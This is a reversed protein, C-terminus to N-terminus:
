ISLCVGSLLKTLFEDEGKLADNHLAFACFGTRSHGGAVRVPHRMPRGRNPRPGKRGANKDPEAGSDWERSDSTHRESVAWTVAV